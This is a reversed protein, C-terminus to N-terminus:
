PIKQSPLLATRPAKYEEPDLDKEASLHLKFRLVFIRYISVIWVKFDIVKQRMELSTGHFGPYNAASNGDILLSNAEFAIM